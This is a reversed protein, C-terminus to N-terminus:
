IQDLLDKSELYSVRREGMLRLISERPTKRLEEKNTIGAARLALCEGRTLRLVALPLAEPPLGYELQKLLLDLDLDLEPYVAAAIAAVSAVLFRTQDATGIIHGYEVRAFPNLSFNREMEDVPVGKIWSLLIAARKTRSFLSVNDQSNRQIQAFVERGYQWTVEQAWRQEQLGKKAIPVFSDAEPLAQTLGMLTQISITSVSMARLAEVLRMASSFGLSSSGCARGLATLFVSEDNLALLELSLMREVLEEIRRRSSQEWSSDRRSALFGAYTNTLLGPVEERKIEKVQSLLRIIWTEFDRPDFSSRLDEPKGMVYHTFLHQRQISHDALLISTGQTTLGLRGARGAMNKYESVLFPREDEGVFRNEPIIVTDAPTNVGAALTTTAALVRVRGTPNRFSREVPLREPLYLHTTHFATGGQLCVRLQQSSSSLDLEPLEALVETAPSLGLERALYGAAGAASGRKNRFILLKEGLPVLKQALPVIIDQSSPKKTRVVIASPSLLAETKVSGDVDLYQFIGSRDLVGERLPVPRTTSVLLRAELWEHFGQENGIVASLTVIQPAIGRERALLLNTLVLEVVIGRKPVTIFQAEDLVVLGVQNLIHPAAVVQNLFKEYTLFAIDYQGQQVESAQSGDDGSSWVVRLGISSYMASFEEFKENVLARYPFLFVAKKDQHVARLAALEGIFTKGSSTPAVVVLSDGDLIRYENVADLQLQNLAPFRKEWEQLVEARIGFQALESVASGVRIGLHEPFASFYHTSKLLRPIALGGTVSGLFIPTQKVYLKAAAVRVRELVTASSRVLDIM